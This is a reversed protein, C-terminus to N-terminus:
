KWINSLYKKGFQSTILRRIKRNKKLEKKVSDEKFFSKVEADDPNIQQLLEQLPTDGWVFGFIHESISLLVRQTPTQNEIAEWAAEREAMEREYEEPHEDYYKQMEEDQQMEWLLFKESFREVEEFYLRDLDGSITEENNAVIRKQNDFLSIIRSSMFMNMKLFKVCETYDVIGDNWFTNIKEVTQFYTGCSYNTMLADYEKKSIIGQIFLQDKSLRQIEYALQKIEHNPWDFLEHLQKKLKDEADSYTIQNLVEDFERYKSFDEYLGYVKNPYKESYLGFKNIKWILIGYVRKAHKIVKSFIFDKADLKEQKIRKDVAHNIILSVVLSTCLGTGLGSLISKCNPECCVVSLLLMGGALVAVIGYIIKAIHKCCFQYINRVKTGFWKLLKKFFRKIRYLNKKRKM